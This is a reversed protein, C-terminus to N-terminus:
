RVRSPPIKTQTLTKSSFVNKDTLLDCVNLLPSKLHFVLNPVCDFAKVRVIRQNAIAFSLLVCITRGAQHIRKIHREASHVFPKQTAMRITRNQNVLLKRFVVANVSDNTSNDRIVASFHRIADTVAPLFTTVGITNRNKILVIQALCGTESFTICQGNGTETHRTIRFHGISRRDDFNRGTDIHGIFAHSNRHFNRNRRNGTNRNRCGSRNGRRCGNRCRRNCGAIGNGVCIGIQCYCRLFATALRLSHNRRDIHRRRNNRRHGNHHLVLVGTLGCINRCNLFSCRSRFNRCFSILIRFGKISIRLRFQQCACLRLGAHGIFLRQLTRNRGALVPIHRNIRRTSQVAVVLDNRREQLSPVLVHRNLLCCCNDCSM